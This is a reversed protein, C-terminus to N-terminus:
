INRLILRFILFTNINLQKHFNLELTPSYCFFCPANAEQHALWPSAGVNVVNPYEAARIGNSRSSSRLRTKSGFFFFQLGTMSQALPWGVSPPHYHTSIMRGFHRQVDFWDPKKLNKLKFTGLFVVFDHIIFQIMFNECSSTPVYGLYGYIAYMSKQKEVSM